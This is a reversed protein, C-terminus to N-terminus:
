AADTPSAPPPPGADDDSARRFPVLRGLGSFLSRWHRRGEEPFLLARARDLRRRRSLAGRWVARADDGVDHLESGPRAYRAQELTAVVRGLADTEDQTLYAAKGLQRSAQRPTSGDPALYGIDQLRLLLSQWEAEVREADDAADRRSRRRSLWAGLPVVAAALLVLLAVGIATLHDSTFRIVGGAAGSTGGTTDAGTDTRDRTPGTSPSASSSPTTASASPSSSSGTDTPVLSYGPATGSRSGPTPEFRVWGLQPFRLEPWAHADSIRVVREDGDAVGPLFGVAMRAPIGAARALMIMASAFQVCYGRKTELFRALPEEPLTRDGTDQALELSYTYATGRLHSQITRAIDLQSDGPDTIEDLLERVVTEARPDVTLDQEDVDSADSTGGFQNAEPDLEVYEASYEGVPRTLQVLGTTSINWSGDPFPSGTANEPLAVQPVGINNDTVSVREVRRPVAPGAPPDPIRGDQPVFTFDSGAAWQGRRYTDLIGVRLPQPNESTTTYRLVPDTSQSGLDRAIDVSTSLRVAGGGGGRANSSSGLGDALFTTPLHPVVGPLVVAVALAAVGVIRGTTSFVTTPDAFPGRNGRTAATGWARMARVGQRGVLALWALAPPVAWLAGLGEGSNTASSLFATLLPIGAAAPSRFTVACADVAVATLGILLSVALVTGRNAPAPATYNTVTTYAETLLVGLAAGTDPVPVVNKWLHGQGHLLAAGHVLLVAQAAVVVLRSSTVLRVGMGVLAVLVVLLLSPRFWDATPTFLTTLPLAVSLTAVAALLAEVPRARNM